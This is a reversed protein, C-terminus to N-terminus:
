DAFLQGVALEFGPIMTELRWVEDVGLIQPKKGSEYLTLTRKYPDAVCVQKVDAQLYDAVKRAMYAKTDNKSLVEVVLDPITELYGEVSRRIPLSGKAIFVVDAGVVRDPNRWLIIGAEGCRGKGYGKMEGQTYLASAIRIEVSGHLDGPPVMTVLRGNDLEYRAPGSPLDSPMAAVDAATYLREFM